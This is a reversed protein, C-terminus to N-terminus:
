EADGGSRRVFRCPEAGDDSDDGDDGDDGDDFDNFAEDFCRLEDRKLLSRNLSDSYQM